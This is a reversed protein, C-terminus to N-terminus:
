LSSPPKPKRPLGMKKKSYPTIVHETNEEVVKDKM